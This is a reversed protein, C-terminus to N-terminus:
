DNGKLYKDYCPLCAFKQGTGDRAKKLHHAHLRKRAEKALDEINEFSSM